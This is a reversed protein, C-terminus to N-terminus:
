PDPCDLFYFSFVSATHDGSVETVALICPMMDTFVQFTQGSHANTKLCALFIVHSFVWV